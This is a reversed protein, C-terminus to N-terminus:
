LTNKFIKTKVLEKTRELMLGIFEKSKKTNRSKLFNMRSDIESRIKATLKQKITGFLEYM